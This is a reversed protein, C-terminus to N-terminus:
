KWTFLKWLEYLQRIIAIIMIPDIGYPQLAAVPADDTVLIPEDGEFLRGLLKWCWGWITDNSIAQIVSDVVREDIETQTLKCGRRIVGLIDVIWQRVEAEDM